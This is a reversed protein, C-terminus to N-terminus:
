LLETLQDIMEDIRSNNEKVWSGSGDKFGDSEVSKASRKLDQLVRQVRNVSPGASSAFRSLHEEADSVRNLLESSQGQAAEQLKERLGAIKQVSDSLGSISSGAVEGAYLYQDLNAEKRLSMGKAQVYELFTAPVTSLRPSLNELANPDQDSLQRDLAETFLRRYTLLAKRVNLWDRRFDLTQLTLVIDSDLHPLVRKVLTYANIYRKVERPNVSSNKVLYDLHPAVVARLHVKQGEPLQGAEDDYISQLFSRLEGASVPRLNFPVQFVKKVYDAGRVRHAEHDSELGTPQEKSYKADIISEVVERDLGVVFVFGEMDFFLKISELVELASEPLCRDLDDVFVVVRRGTEKGSFAEFTNQLARFSAHYFSRPAASERDQESFNAAQALAKNADLSLDFAGPVGVKLNIGALLSYIVKGVTSATKIAASAIDTSKGSSWQVLADRLTDLLPVILHKEREYRWVNFWVPVVDPEAALQREIARMLTTKGSGWSGFIGVAFQPQSAIVIEKLATAYSEFNLEPKVSPNDHIIKFESTDVQPANM